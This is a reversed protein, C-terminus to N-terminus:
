IQENINKKQIALMHLTLSSQELRNTNQNKSSSNWQCFFIRLNNNLRRQYIRFFRFWLFLLFVVLLSLLIFTLLKITSWQLDETLFVGFISSIFMWFLILTLLFLTSYQRALLGFQLKHLVDLFSRILLLILISFFISLFLWVLLNRRLTSLAQIGNSHIKSEVNDLLILSTNKIKVISPDIQLIVQKVADDVVKVIDSITGGM